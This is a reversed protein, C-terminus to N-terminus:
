DRERAVLKSQLGSKHLWSEVLTQLLEGTQAFIDRVSDLHAAVRKGFGGNMAEGHLDFLCAAIPWTFRCDLPNGPPNGVFFPEQGGNKDEWDVFKQMVHPDFHGFYKDRIRHVKSIVQDPNKGVIRDWLAEQDKKGRLMTRSVAGKKEGDKLLRFAEASWGACVFGVMIHDLKNVMGPEHVCELHVGWRLASHMAEMCAMLQLMYPLDPIRKLQTDKALRFEQLNADVNKSPLSVSPRATQGVTHAAYALVARIREDNLNPYNKWITSETWHRALLELVFDVSLRTGRLTPKGGSVQPDCAIYDRWDFSPEGIGGTSATM